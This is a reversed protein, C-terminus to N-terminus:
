KFANEQADELAQLRHRDSCLCFADLLSNPKWTMFLIFIQRPMHTQMM